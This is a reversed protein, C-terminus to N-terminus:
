IKKEFRRLRAARIAALSNESSEVWENEQEHAHVHRRRVDRENSAETARQSGDLPAFSKESYGMDDESTSPPFHSTHQPPPIQAGGSHITDGSTTPIYDSNFPQPPASPPAVDVTQTISREITSQLENDEISGNEQHQEQQLSLRIAEQLDEEDTDRGANGRYGVCCCPGQM